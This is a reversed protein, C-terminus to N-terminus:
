KENTSGMGGKRKNNNFINDAKLFPIFIAQAIGEKAKFAATKNGENQVALWIHGENKENNYYDADVVGVQNCLRINYKFGLSSRIILFLVEDDKMYAKIGTPIKKIEGPKLEINQLLMIDYGASKQTKLVPLSYNDYLEKNEEVEKRFASWSIKEFGRNM